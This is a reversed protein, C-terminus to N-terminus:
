DKPMLRPKCLIEHVRFDELKASSSPTVVMATDAGRGTGAVVVCRRDCQLLGSDAAMMAIEVCVQVGQSFIRLVDGMRKPASCGHLADTHFPMTGAHFEHGAERLTPILNWEFEHEDMWGFQPAVVVMRMDTDEIREMLKLGTAGTRSAVVVTEIQYVSAANVTLDLTEDTNDPGPTDHYVITSEM